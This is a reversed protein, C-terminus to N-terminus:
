GSIGPRPFTVLDPRLGFNTTMQMGAMRVPRTWDLGGNIYDGANWTRMTAVDSVTYTSDLRVTQSLYPNHTEVVNNSFVGRNGFLRLEGLLSNSTQGAYHTFETDYNLLAGTDSHAPSLDVPVPDANLQQAIQSQVPVKLYLTQANADLRWTWGKISDLSILGDGTEAPKGNLILGSATLQERTFLLVGQRQTIEQINNHDQGNVVVNLLLSQGADPPTGTTAAAAPWILAIALMGGAPRWYRPLILQEPRCEGV